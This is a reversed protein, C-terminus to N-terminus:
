ELAELAAELRTNEYLAATYEWQAAEAQLKEIERRLARRQAKLDKEQALAAEAQPLLAQNSERTLPLEAVIQDYEMQQRRIKGEIIELHEYTDLYQANLANLEVLSMVTLFLCVLMILAFLISVKQKM